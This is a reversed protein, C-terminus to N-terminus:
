AFQLLLQEMVVKIRENCLNGMSGEHTHSAVDFQGPAFIGEEVQNGIIRYADRFSEGGSVLTNVAEVTFLYKYKPDTLIDKKVQVQPLAYSLMGFCDLLTEIAPFLIEKTLQLERHYGSPLNVLMMSLENPLAQLRNCKGRVLEFVDPNKKHPMISSGTTLSAPFRIFDFNQNLFLCVDMSLRSLTAALAAIGMAVFKETKGRSMQAYVANYHLDSFHLLTTTMQRDLPFSSGYGAGSGLPNKDTVKYAALLLELDDTLSEAYAGFWLGFSSPMALQLHTYGPMLQHQHLESLQQLHGFLAATAAKIEQISQKLFLKIAVAVQDNRSRGSHIKKGTTGLKRTLQLEIQSHVDEVEPEIVFTGAKVEQLIQQLTEQLQEQEEVRLLGAKRLMAAHAMSGQIDHAALLLDFDRDKGITFQEVLQATDTNDKQWLKM